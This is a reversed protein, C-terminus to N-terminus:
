NLYSSLRKEINPDYRNDQLLATYYEIEYKGDDFRAIEFRYFMGDCIVNDIYGQLDERSGTLVYTDENNGYFEGELYLIRCKESAYFVPDYQMKLAISYQPDGLIGCSYDYQYSICQKRSIRNPLMGRYNNKLDQKVYHNYHSYLLPDDLSVRWAPPDQWVYLDIFCLVAVVVVFGLLVRILKKM